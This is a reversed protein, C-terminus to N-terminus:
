ATELAPIQALRKGVKMGFLFRIVKFRKVLLEYIALILVLSSTSIILYKLMIGLRWQVVFFGIVLIMTQHLIYFPLVAENCYALVKNNVNLFRTGM